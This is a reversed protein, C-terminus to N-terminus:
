QVPRERVCTGESYGAGWNSYDFVVQVAFRQGKFVILDPYKCTGDSIIMGQVYFSMVNAVRMAEPLRQITRGSAPQVSGVSPFNRETLKNVGFSDVETYRRVITIPDVLDPDSMLDSVDIQGM